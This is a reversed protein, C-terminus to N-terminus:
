GTSTAPPTAAPVAPAARRTWCAKGSTSGCHRRSLGALEAAVSISFLGRAHDAWGPSVVAPGSGPRFERALFARTLLEPAAVPARAGGLLQYHDAAM